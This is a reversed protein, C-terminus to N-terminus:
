AFFHAKGPILPPIDMVPGAADDSAPSLAVKRPPPQVGVAGAAVSQQYGEEESGSGDGSSYSSGSHDSPIDDIITNPQSALLRSPADLAYHM